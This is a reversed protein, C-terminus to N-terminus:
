RPLIFYFNNGMPTPEYGARGGHLEIVEKVFFLGHGTGRERGVNSGRYGEGFVIQQEDSKLPSGSSFLNIKVGESNDGFANLMLELGYAIFKRGNPEGSAPRTYKVANSLLNAFVQSILGIDVV